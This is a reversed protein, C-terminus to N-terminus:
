LYEMRPHMVSMVGHIGNYVARHCYVVADMASQIGHAERRIPLPAGSNPDTM